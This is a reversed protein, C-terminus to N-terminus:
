DTVTQVTGDPKEIIIWDFPEGTTNRLMDKHILKMIAKAFMEADRYLTFQELLVETDADKDYAYVKMAYQIEPDFGKLSERGDDEIFPHIGREELIEMYSKAM